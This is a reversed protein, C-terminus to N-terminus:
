LEDNVNEESKWHEFWVSSPSSFEACDPCVDIWVKPRLQRRVWGSEKAEVRLHKVGDGKTVGRSNAILEQSWELRKRCEDCQIEFRKVVSM